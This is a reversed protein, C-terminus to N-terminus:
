GWGANLALKAILRRAPNFAVREPRILIGYTDRLHRVEAEKEEETRIHPPWGSAEYKRAFLSAIFDRFLMDSTEPFHWLERVKM